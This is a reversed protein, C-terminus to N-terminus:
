QADIRTCELLFSGLWVSSIRNRCHCSCVPCEPECCSLVTRAGSSEAVFGRCRKPNVTLSTIVLICTDLLFTSCRPIHLNCWIESCRLTLTHKARPWHARSDHPLMQPLQSSGGTGRPWECTVAISTSFGSTSAAASLKCNERAPSRPVSWKQELVVWGRGSSSPRKRCILWTEQTRCGNSLLTTFPVTTM